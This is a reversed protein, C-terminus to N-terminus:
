GEIQTRKTRQWTDKTYINTFKESKKVSKVKGMVRMACSNKTLVLSIKNKNYNRNPQHTQIKNGAM